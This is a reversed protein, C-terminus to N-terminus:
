EAPAEETQSPQQSGDASPSRFRRADPGVRTITLTGDDEVVIRRDFVSGGSSLDIPQGAISLNLAEPKGVRVRLPGSFEAARTDGARMMSEHTGLESSYYVWVDAVATMALAYRAPGAPEAPSPPAPQAPTVSETSVGDVLAPPVAALPHEKEEISPQRTVVRYGYALVLVAAAFLVRSLWVRTPAGVAGALETKHARVPAPKEEAPILDEPTRPAGMLGLIEDDSIKLFRAYTRMFTKAYIDSDFPSDPHPPLLGEELAHLFRRSIRSETEVQELSRRSAERRSKLLQAIKDTEM